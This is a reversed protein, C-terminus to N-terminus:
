PPPDGSFVLSEPSELSELELVTDVDRLVGPGCGEVECLSLDPERLVDSLRASDPWTLVRERVSASLLLPHGRRGDRIPLVLTHPSAGRAAKALREVDAPQLLPLDAPCVATWGIDRGIASLGAKVSSFMGVAWAEHRVTRLRGDIEGDAMGAIADQLREADKGLVVVVEDQGAFARLIRSILTEGGLKALLKTSGFRSSAGAALLVAGTQTM